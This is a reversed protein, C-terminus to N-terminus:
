IFHVTKIVITESIVSLAYKCSLLVCKSAGYVKGSSIIYLGNKLLKEVDFALCDVSQNIWCARSTDCDTVIWHSSNEKPKIKLQYVCLRKSESKFQVEIETKSDIWTLSCSLTCFVHSSLLFLCCSRIIHSINLYVIINTFNRLSMIHWVCLVFVQACHPM